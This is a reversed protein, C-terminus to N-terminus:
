GMEPESNVVRQSVKYSVMQHKEECGKHRKREQGGCRKGVPQPGHPCPSPGVSPQGFLPQWAKARYRMCTSSLGLMVAFGPYPLCLRVSRAFASYTVVM